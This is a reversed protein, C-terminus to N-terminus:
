AGGKGGGGGGGGGGAPSTGFTNNFGNSLGGLRGDGDILGLDLPTDDFFGGDGFVAGPAFPNGGSQGPTHGTWSDAREERPLASGSPAGSYGNHAGGLYAPAPMQGSQPNIFMSNIANAQGPRNVQLEQMAAELIPASSYGQVGPAYETPTPMSPMSGGLGFANAANATNQFASMQAPQFAAVDPGYYPVYGIQSIQDARDLNSQAAERVWDPITTRTTQRGGKGGGSMPKAGTDSPGPALTVIGAELRGSWFDDNGSLWQFNVFETVACGNPREWLRFRGALVGAAIDDFTHTGGSYELAAEIWPRCRSLQDFLM